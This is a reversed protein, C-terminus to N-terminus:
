KEKTTEESAPVSHKSKDLSIQNATQLIESITRTERYDMNTETKNRYSITEGVWSHESNETSENAYSNRTANLTANRSLEELDKDVRQIEKLHTEEVPEENPRMKTNITVTQFSSSDIEVISSDTDELYDNHDEKSHRDCNSNAAIHTQPKVFVLLM